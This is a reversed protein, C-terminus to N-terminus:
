RILKIELKPCVNLVASSTVSIESVIINIPKESTNISRELCKFKLYEAENENYNADHNHEKERVFNAHHTINRQM